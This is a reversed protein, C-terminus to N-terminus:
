GIASLLRIISEDICSRDMPDPLQPIPLPSPLVYNPSVLGLRFAEHEKIEAIRFRSKPDLTLMASILNQIEAPLEPMEFRGSKVKAILNRISHDNFPLRGALTVFLIVM